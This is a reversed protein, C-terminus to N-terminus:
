IQVVKNFLDSNNYRHSILVLTIKYETKIKELIRRESEVDIENM